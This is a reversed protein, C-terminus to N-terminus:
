RRCSTASGTSGSRTAGADDPQAGHVGRGLRGDGPLRATVDNYELVHDNGSLLIANHPADEILNHSVRAGVGEIAVAAQYTRPWRSYAWIHNDEAYLGGVDLTKRDGGFLEIGRSGLGTLDCHAVGSDQSDHISVGYTGFNRILCSDVRNKAGDEIWVAGERGAELRLGKLTVNSAGKLRFM